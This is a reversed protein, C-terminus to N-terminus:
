GPITFCATFFGFMGKHDKLHAAIDEKLKFKEECFLCGFPKLVKVFLGKKTLDDLISQFFYLIYLCRTILCMDQKLTFLYLLKFTHNAFHLICEITKYTYSPVCDQDYITLRVICSSLTM